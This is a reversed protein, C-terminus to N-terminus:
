VRVCVHARVHEYVLVCARGCASVCVCVYKFDGEEGEVWSTNLSSDSVSVSVSVSVYGCLRAFVYRVDGEEGEVWSGNAVVLGFDGIKIGHQDSLFLNDPKLDLHLFNASHICSL